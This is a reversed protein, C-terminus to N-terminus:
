MDADYRWYNDTRICMFLVFIWIFVFGQGVWMIIHNNKILVPCWGLTWLSYCFLFHKKLLVFCARYNAPISMHISPHISLLRAMPCGHPTGHGWPVGREGGSFLVILFGIKFCQHALYYICYYNRNLICDPDMLVRHTIIRYQMYHPVAYYLEVLFSWSVVYPLM